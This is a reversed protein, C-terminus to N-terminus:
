SKKESIKIALDVNVEDTLNLTVKYEGVAKIPDSLKIRKKDVKLNLQDEIAKQIEKEGISGYLTGKDTVTEEFSLTSKEITSKLEQANKLIDEQEKVRAEAMKEAWKLRAPTAKIALGNPGLYNMYYGPKVTKTEGKRGLKEVNKTLIVEM